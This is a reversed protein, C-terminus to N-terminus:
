ARLSQPASKKGRSKFIFFFPVGILAMALAISSEVPREFFGLVLIAGGALVYLLPVVPFGPMRYVSTRERRLKFVGLVSIIPFIGLSFGMYTLIQDFTGFM